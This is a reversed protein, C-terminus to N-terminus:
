VVFGVRTRKVNREALRLLRRPLARRGIAVLALWLVFFANLAGGGGGGSSSPPPPNAPTNVSASTSEASRNGAADVASVTYTYRTNATLGTDVFTAGILAAGSAVTVGDRQVRYSAVGVNDTSVTWSLSVQTTSTATAQLNSPVSPATTDPAAPPTTVQRIASEGSRNGAADVASVTYTYTTNAALGTDAFSTATVAAGAAVTLGDRQVRYSAVGVNDTSANWTLNVQSASVATAQLNGPISPAIIDGMSTLPPENATWLSAATNAFSICSTPALSDCASTGAGEGFRYWGVLGNENGTVARSWDASLEVATKARSWFRMEDVLGKYDEYVPRTGIAAQKEAGWFWGRQAAPFGSWNNWWTRMDTRLGSTETDILVGDIWLELDSAAAGVFRRVLTVQHWQGDVINPGSSAPFAGISWVGGPNSGTGDGFLWRVRGSGYFQLSFTGNAFENNNHGDLLFNGEFWWGSSSYPTVNANSWNTRQGPSGDATSGFPFSNNPRLWLEFTFQGGGFAAPIALQVGHDYNSGQPTLLFDVSAAQASSAMVAALISSGVAAKLGIVPTAM